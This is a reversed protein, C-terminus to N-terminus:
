GSRGALAAAATREPFRPDALAALAQVRAEAKHGLDAYIQALHWRLGAHHPAQVVAKQLLEVAAAADGNRYLAWGYADAVVPNAPALAYAAEGFEEAAAVEGAGSYAVALDANLAADGDGVRARLLELTDIAADYEGAALQWRGSLRLGAANVPNQSLFLALVKAADPRRDARDLAEVLRLMTPADFRMDAANRYAAAADAFRDMAMLTDGVLLHAAPVGPHRRALDRAKALAGAKDGQGILARVLPIVASADDPRQDADGALVTTSDDASFADAEAGGPWAARDLLQAASAHDGIREFGRAALTLSYSDADGRTVVPRLLDIANRASDTRLLAVALLKRAALNMPQNAVLPKLKELAQEYDAAEIDLAGGLLLAAPIANIGSGGREILSRALDKDGARAAIVAQLYLAQASGPRVALARRTAALADTTRGSDGLTAAYEILAGYDAPDRKLAAEFWPLAAILGFQSRVMEGRLVLAGLNTADVQVAQESARIAGLMDGADLRLRGADAWVDADRPAIRLAEDIAVFAGTQKGLAALTRARIRLAYPRFQPDAKDSEALAKEEEGQLLLAHARLHAVQRPKYGAEVARQLEAEAAVGEGLALMARALLLHAQPNRPDARVAALARERAATADHADLLRESQIVAQQVAAPDLRAPPLTRWAALVLVFAGIAGGIVILRRLRRTRAAPHSRKRRSTM